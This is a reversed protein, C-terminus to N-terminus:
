LMRVLLEVCLSRARGCVVSELQSLLVPRSRMALRSPSPTHLWPSLLPSISYRSILQIWSPHRWHPSTSRGQGREPPRTRFRESPNGHYREVSGLLCADRPCPVSTLREDNVTYGQSPTVAAPCVRSAEVTSHEEGHSEM